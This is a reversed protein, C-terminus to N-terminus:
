LKRKIMKQEGKLREREDVRLHRLIINVSIKSIRAKPIKLIFKGLHTMLDSAIANVLVLLVELNPATVTM